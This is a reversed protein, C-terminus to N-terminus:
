AGQEYGMAKGKIIFGPNLCHEEAHEQSLQLDGPLVLNSPFYLVNWIIRGVEAVIRTEPATSPNSYFDSLFQPACYCDVWARMSGNISRWSRAEHVWRQRIYLCEFPSLEFVTEPMHAMASHPVLMRCMGNKYHAGLKRSNGRFASCFRWWVTTSIPM